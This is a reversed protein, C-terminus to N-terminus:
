AAPPAFCATTCRGATRKAQTATSRSEDIAGRQAARKARGPRVQGQSNASPRHHDGPRRGAAVPWRASTTPARRAGEPPGAICAFDRSLASVVFRRRRAGVIVRPAGLNIGALVALYFGAVRARCFVICGAVHEAAM